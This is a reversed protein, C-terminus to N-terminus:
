PTRMNLLSPVLVGTKGGKPNQVSGAQQMDRKYEIRLQPFNSLVTEGALQRQARRLAHGSSLSSEKSATVKIRQYATSAGTVAPLIHLDNANNTDIAFYVRRKGHDM